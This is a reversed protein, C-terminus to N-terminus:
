PKELPEPSNFHESLDPGAGAERRRDKRICFLLRSCPNESLAFVTSGKPHFASPPVRPFSLSHSLVHILVDGPRKEGQEGWDGGWLRVELAPV